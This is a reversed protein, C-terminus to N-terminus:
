PSRGFHPMQMMNLITSQQIPVAWAVLVHVEGDHQNILYKDLQFRPFKKADTLGHDCYTLEEIRGLLNGKIQVERPPGPESIAYDSPPHPRIPKPSEGRPDVYELLKPIRVSEANFKSWAEEMFGPQSGRLSTRAPTPENITGKEKNVGSTEGVKGSPGAMVGVLGARNFRQLVVQLQEETSM